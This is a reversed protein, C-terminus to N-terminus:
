LTFFLSNRGNLQSKVTLNKCIFMLMSVDQYVLIVLAFGSLEYFSEGGGRNNVNYRIKVQDTSQMLINRAALDRCNMKSLNVM